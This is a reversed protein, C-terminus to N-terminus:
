GTVSKYLFQAKRACFNFIKQLINRKLTYRMKEQNFQSLFVEIDCIEYTKPSIYRPYLILVGAILEYISLKRKRRKNECMDDSLGWGSYFPMGYTVVRKGRLLAEFGVLSTITHVEDCVGLVSGLSGKKIIKDAYLLTEKDSLAGVRNKALVDPHPKYIIFAHPNKERVARLLALNSMDHSGYLISADDDVQGVALIIKKDTHIDINEDKDTNYKSIGERIVFEQIKKAKKIIGEDFDTDNLIKELGSESRADFYIGLKDVVLSYARTLDSGLGVSRIFGDEVYSVSISHKKAYAEVEGFKKKGWIYILSNSELGKKLAIKLYNKSFLPNIFVFKTFEEDKFFPKVFGHKWL